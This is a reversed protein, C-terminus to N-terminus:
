IKRRSENRRNVDNFNATGIMPSNKGRYRLCVGTETPITEIIEINRDNLFAQYPTKAIQVTKGTATIIPVTNRYQKVPTLEDFVGYDNPRYNKRLTEIDAFTLEKTNNM